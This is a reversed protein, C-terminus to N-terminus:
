LLAVPSMESERVAEVPIARVALSKARVLVPTVAPVYPDEVVNGVKVTSACPLSDAAPLTFVEDRDRAPSTDPVKPLAETSLNFPVGRFRVERAVFLIRWYLPVSQTFTLGVVRPTVLVNTFLPVLVNVEVTFPVAAEALIMLVTDFVEDTFASEVVTFPTAPEETFIMLELASVNFPVFSRTEVTFPTAAVARSIVAATRLLIEAV